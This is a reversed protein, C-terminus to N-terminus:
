DGKVYALARKLGEENDGLSGIAVNCSRCLLGRVRGTDHCHDVALRTHGNSPDDVHDCLKCTYDQEELLKEYDDLTIGYKRQYANNRKQRKQESTLPKRNERKYERTCPPCYPHTPHVVEYNDGCRPCTREM